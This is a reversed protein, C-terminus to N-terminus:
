GRRYIGETLGQEMDVARLYQETVRVDSHGMLEQVTKIDLDRGGQDEKRLCTTCFTHRLSYLTFDAEQRDARVTKVRGEADMM